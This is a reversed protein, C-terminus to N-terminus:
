MQLNVSDKTNVKKKCSNEERGEDLELNEGMESYMLEEKRMIEEFSYGFWEDLWCYVQKHFRTFINKEMNMIYNEAKTQFGFVSCKVTVVKYACMYKKLKKQWNGKLPGFDFKKSQFLSPDESEKYQKKDEIEDNGIDIYHIERLKLTEEDLGVANDLDGKDNVVNNTEITFTFRSGLFPSTIVTKARPYNDWSEEHLKTASSPLIAKIWGPM